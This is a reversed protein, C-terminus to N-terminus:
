FTVAAGLGVRARGLPVIGVQVRDFREPPVREWHESRLLFQGVLAGAVAGAMAGGIAGFATCAGSSSGFFDSGMLGGTCEQMGGWVAGGIVGVALGWLAGRAPDPGTGRSIELSGLSRVLLARRTTDPARGADSPGSRLWQLVISDRAMGVVTATQNIIGASPAMVRVRQGPSLWVVPEPADAGAPAIVLAPACAALDLGLFAAGLASRAIARAAHRSLVM